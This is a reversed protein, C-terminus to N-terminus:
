DREALSLIVAERMVAGADKYREDSFWVLLSAAEDATLIGLLARTWAPDQYRSHMRYPLDAVVATPEGDGRELQTVAGM